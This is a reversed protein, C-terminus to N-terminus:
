KRLPAIFLSMMGVNKSMCFSPLRKTSTHEDAMVLMSLIDKSEDQMFISDIFLSSDSGLGRLAM